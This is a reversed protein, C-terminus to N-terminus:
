GGSSDASRDAPIPADRDKASTRSRVFSGIAVGLLVFLLGSLLATLVVGVFAFNQAFYNDTLKTILGTLGLLTLWDAVSCLYTVGWLRRFPKIALVRRVRNITSAEARGSDTGRLDTDSGPV